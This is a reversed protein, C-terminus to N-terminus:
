PIGDGHTQSKKTPRVFDRVVVDDFGDLADRVVTQSEVIM